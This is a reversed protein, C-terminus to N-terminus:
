PDRRSSSRGARPAGFGADRLSPKRGSVGAGAWGVGCFGLTLMLMFPLAQMQGVSAAVVAVGACYGAVAVETWGPRSPANRLAVVPRSMCDGTKPTREWDM